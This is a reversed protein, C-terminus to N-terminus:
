HVKLTLSNEMKDIIEEFVKATETKKRFYIFPKGEDSLKVIDPEIPIKGLFSVELDNAIKQGGGTKFLDISKQCYPCVLGSMNEIVGIFPINLKKAFLVGKRSDLIAVDQPTTVIIAGNIDSILQCISLPEDGTGPPSDVILYDLKGWNVDALFQRILGAKLPGRWVVPEDKGLGILALSMVKLNPLLSVPEIGLDSVMIRSNEIGLMKPVNPGHIDVDLIGTQYGRTALGYALNVATTTKGVGGKGSFVMLKNRIKTMNEKVRKIQKEIQEKRNKQNVKESM